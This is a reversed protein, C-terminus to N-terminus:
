RQKDKMRYSDGEIVVTECHHLIRDLLASTATPDDDFFQAWDQYARNTTIITSAKEYRENIVQFMINSGQRNIPLYGLEDIILLHANAYKRMEMQLAGKRIAGELNQIMSIASTFIVNRGQQCVKYALASALHTKGVGVTGIFVINTKEELFRLNFLHRVLDHNIKEPWGFNFQDLTKLTPIRARRLRTQAAREKKAALEGALLRELLKEPDTKKRAANVLEANLNEAIWKLKLEGLITQLSNKM